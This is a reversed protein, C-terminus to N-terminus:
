FVKETAQPKGAMSLYFVMFSGMMVVGLYGNVASTMVSMVIRGVNAPTAASILGVLIGVVFGIGLSILILIIFLLLLSFVRSFPKKCLSLSKKMAEVAGAEECVLAYPSMMLPIFYQLATFIAIAVAIAIAIGTVLVNNLPMVVAILLGIILAVVAVLLVIIIGLIL